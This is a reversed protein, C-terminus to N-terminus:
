EVFGLVEKQLIEDLHSFDWYPIRLLKINNEQCYKDKLYDNYQQIKLQEKSVIPLYHYEGDYEILIILKNNRDFLAFDFPLPRKNRCEKIIYQPIFIINYQKLWDSIFREGKSENCKPCRRNGFLFNNPRVPYEHGCINHRVMIKTNLNIYPELFTYEKGTLNSIRNLFEDNTLVYNRFCNPCRHGQLFSSPLVPYECNCKLHKIIINQQSTIYKSLVEYEGNTLEQIQNRFEEDSKRLISPTEDYCKKCRHGQLFSSWEVWYPKHNLNSCKMLTFLKPTNYTLRREMDLVNYDSNIVELYEKILDITWNTRSTKNKDLVDCIECQKVDYYLFNYFNLEFKRGCGCIFLMPTYVDRYKNSLLKCNSNDEIYKKVKNINWRIIGVCKECQRQNVSKFKTFSATFVEGCKCQILLREGANIYEDQTTVLKCKSNSDIEIFQKIQNYPIKNKEVRSKQSCKNCQRKNRGKFKSFSTKFTEKGCCCLIEIPKITNKYEEKLTLLKCGNGEEGEVFEKVEEYDLKRSM